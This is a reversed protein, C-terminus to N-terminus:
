EAPEDPENNDASSNEAATGEKKSLGAYICIALAAALLLVALSVMVIYRTRGFGPSQNSAQTQAEGVGSQSGASGAPATGSSGNETYVTVDAAATTDTDFGATAGPYNHTVVPKQTVARTTGSTGPSPKDPKTTKDAKTASVTVTTTPKAGTTTQTSQEATTQTEYVTQTFLTSPEGYGDLVRIGLRISDPMVTKFGVRVEAAFDNNGMAQFGTNVAYAYQDYVAEGNLPCAACLSGNIYIEFGALANDPELDNTVAQLALFIEGDGGDAIVRLYAFEVDCNSEATSQALTYQLCGAWERETIKGDCVVSVARAYFPPILLLCVM